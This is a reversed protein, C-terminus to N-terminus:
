TNRWGVMVSLVQMTATRAFDFIMQRRALIVPVVSSITLEQAIFHTPHVRVKHRFLLVGVRDGIKFKGNVELGVAVVTGVPEHSPVIPLPSKYAGEWVQYDTHCFGAAGIKM